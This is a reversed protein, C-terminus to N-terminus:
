RSQRVFRCLWLRLRFDLMSETGKITMRKLAYRDSRWLDRWRLIVSCAGTYGVERALRKHREDYFGRPYALFEPPRGLRDELARRSRVLESLADGESLETLTRHNHTHSGIEFGQEHLQRIQEWSMLPRDPEGLHRDWTSHGGVHGAVVFLTATFGLRELVPRAHEWFDLTGDDFTIVVPRPPLAAGGGGSMARSLSVPEYGSDRLRTMQREFLEPTIELQPSRSRSRTGRPRMWHYM